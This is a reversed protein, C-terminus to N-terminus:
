IRGVFYPSAIEKINFAIVADPDPQYYEVKKKKAKRKINYLHRYANQGCQRCCYKPRGTWKGCEKCRRM